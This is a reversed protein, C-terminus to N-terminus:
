ILYKVFVVWATIVISVLLGLGAYTVKRVVRRKTLPHDSQEVITEEVSERQKRTMTMGKGLFKYDVIIYSVGLAFAVAKVAMAFKLVRDYAM